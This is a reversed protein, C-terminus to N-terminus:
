ATRADNFEELLARIRTALPGGERWMWCSDIMFSLNVDPAPIPREGKLRSYYAWVGQMAAALMSLVLNTMHLCGETKGIIKRVESSLGPKVQLGNLRELSQKAEACGPMPIAPMQATVNRITLGPLDLMLSVVMGHIVGPDEIEGTAYVLYPFFREDTLTGELLLAEGDLEYCDVTISRTYIKEGRKM